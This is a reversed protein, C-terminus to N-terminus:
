DIVKKYEHETRIHMELKAYKRYPIKDTMYFERLAKIARIILRETENREEELNNENTAPNNVQM